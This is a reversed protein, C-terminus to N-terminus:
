FKTSKTPRKIWSFNTIYTVLQDYYIHWLLIFKHFWRLKGFQLLKFRQFYLRSDPVKSGKMVVNGIYM